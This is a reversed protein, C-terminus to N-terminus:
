LLTRIQEGHKLTVRAQGKDDFTLVEGTDNGDADVIIFDGSIPVDSQDTLSITYDFEKFMSALNGKVKTSISLTSSTIEIMPLMTFKVHQNDNQCVWLTYGESTTTPKVSCMGNYFDVGTFWFDLHESYYANNGRKLEAHIPYVGPLM